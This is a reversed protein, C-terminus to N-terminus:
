PVSKWSVGSVGWSTAIDRAIDDASELWDSLKPHGNADPVLSDLEINSSLNGPRGINITRKRGDLEIELKINDHAFSPITILSNPSTAGDFLNLFWNVDQFYSKRKSRIVMEVEQIQDRDTPSFVDAIDKPLVKKILRITKLTGHKLLSEMVMKPVVREVSLSFDNFKNRFHQQLHPITIHRVGLAHFRGLLLLGRTRQASTTNKPM